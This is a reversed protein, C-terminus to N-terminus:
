SQQPGQTRQPGQSDQLRLEDMLKQLRPPLDSAEPVLNLRLREAIAKCITTSTARDIQAARDIERHPMVRDLEPL